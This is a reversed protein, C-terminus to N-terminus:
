CDLWGWRKRHIIASVHPPSINYKKSLGMTGYEQDGKIYSRRIERVIEESFKSQSNREGKHCDKLKGYNNNYKHDCWELNSVCNNTKIEDRHNVEPLNLPNEIFTSAILRHVLHKINKSDKSLMVMLYAGRGDFTFTMIKGPKFRTYRGWRGDLTIYRDLSRIRGQDSAEYYGEYGPIAKWKEM